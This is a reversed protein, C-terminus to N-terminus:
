SAHEKAVSLESASPGCAKVQSFAKQHMLEPPMQFQRKFKRKLLQTVARFNSSYCFCMELGKSGLFYSLFM